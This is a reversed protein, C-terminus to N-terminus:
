RVHGAVHKMEEAVVAAFFPTSRGIARKTM